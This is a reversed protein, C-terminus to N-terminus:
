AGRKILKAKYDLIRNEIKKKTKISKTRKQIQELRYVEKNHLNNVENVLKNVADDKMELEVKYLKVAEKLLRKEERHEQRLKDIKKTSLRTVEISTERKERAILEGVEKKTYIGLISM